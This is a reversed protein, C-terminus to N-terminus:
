ASHERRAEDGGEGEDGSSDRSRPLLGTDEVRDAVHAADADHDIEDEETVDDRNDRDDRNRARVTPRAARDNAAATDKADEELRALLRALRKQWDYDTVGEELTEFFKDEDFTPQNCVHFVLNSIAAKIKSSDM